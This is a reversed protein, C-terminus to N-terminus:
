SAPTPEAVTTPETAPTAGAPDTPLPVNSTPVVPQTPAPVPTPYPRIMDRRFGPDSPIDGDWLRDIASASKLGQLYTTWAEDRATAQAQEVEADGLPRDEPGEILKLIHWGFQTEVPESLQGIETLAFAATEFEAVMTGQGFWGLDGGTTNNSTDTSVEAAVAAFDEGGQLRALVAQAEEQTAVLIHAVHVQEQTATVSSVDAESRVSETLKQRFLQARIVTRFDAETFGTRQQMESIFASYVPQYKDDTFLNPTSTPAFTPTPFPTVTPGATTPTTAPTPETGTPVGTETITESSTVMTTVTVEPTPTFAAATATANAVGTATADLDEQIIAQDPQLQAMQRRIETNVEDDSVAIGRETAAKEILREEIMTELVTFDLNEYQSLIQQQQQAVYQAFFQASNPDALLETSQARVNQELKYVRFREYNIRRFLQERTITEGNITAMTQQPEFFVSYAAGIILIIVSLIAIVATGIVVRQRVEADRQARTQHKRNLLPPQSPSKPTEPQKAM